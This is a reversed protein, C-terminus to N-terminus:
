NILEEARTLDVGVLQSIGPEMMTVGFLRDMRTITIINHTIVIFRTSTEKTMFDLIDCYKEINADDLPADVEDMLCIPSPNSLFVAFILALATLTQEGGSLLSITTVKKGPPQCMIELGAELPDTSDVLTLKAKGGQFLRTFLTQFTTNVENFAEILKQRGDKNISRVATNLKEIAELVDKREWLITELEDSIEKADQEARLNVSGLNDRFRIQRELRAEIEAQSFDQMQDNSFEQWFKEFNLNYESKIRGDFEAANEALSEKKTTLRVQNEKKAGLEAILEKGRTQLKRLNGEFSGLTDRADVLDRSTVEMRKDLVEKKNGLDEPLSSTKEIELKLKEIRVQIGSRREVAIESQAKWKSLNLEMEEKRDRLSKKHDTLKDFNAKENRLEERQKDLKELNNILSEHENEDSESNRLNGKNVDLEQYIKLQASEENIKKELSIINDSAITRQNKHRAIEGELAQLDSGAKSINSREVELDGVLSMKKELIVKKNRLTDLQSEIENLEEQIEVVKNQNRVRLANKSIEGTTYRVFGDWRWLDGEKTILQQGPLLKKSLNDGEGTTSVIGVHEFLYNLVDAGKIRSSLNELRPFNKGIKNEVKNDIVKQWGSVRIESIRPYELESFFLADLCREYGSQIELEDFVTEQDINKDLLARSAELESLSVAKKANLKNIENDLFEIEGQNKQFGKEKQSLNHSMIQYGSELTEQEKILDELKRKEDQEASKLKELSLNLKELSRSFNSVNSLHEEKRKENLIKEAKLENLRDRFSNYSDDVAEMRETIKEITERQNEIKKDFDHLKENVEQLLTNQDAMNNQADAMFQDERQLDTESQTFQTKLENVQRESLNIENLVVQRELLAKQHAESKKEVDIKKSSINENEVDLKKEFEGNQSELSSLIKLNETLSMDVSNIDARLSLYQKLLLLGKLTRIDKSLKAYREAERAQKEITKLQIELQSILDQLRELNREAGNLKLQAEHRRHYLGSIGAAEELIRKRDKPKMNLLEAIQGQKILSSSNSGSSFDAFLTQVDRARLEKGNLRYSSGTDRTIKRSIELEKHRNFESSARQQSNDIEVTVEAFSRPSRGEVGAFIVDEMGSARMSSPRSEGMLWQFADIINSKGCGNPGVIGTLGPLIEVETSDVFSKFGLLRLKTIEM